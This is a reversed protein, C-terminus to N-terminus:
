LWTLNSSTEGSAIFKKQPSGRGKFMTSAKLVQFHWLAELLWIQPNRSSMLTQNSHAVKSATHLNKFLYMLNWPTDALHSVQWAQSIFIFLEREGCTGWCSLIKISAASLSKISISWHTQTLAEAFLGETIFRSQFACLPVSGWICNTLHSFSSEVSKLSNTIM